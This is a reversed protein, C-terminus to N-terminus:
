GNSRGEPLAVGPAPLTYGLKQMAERIAARLDDRYHCTVEVRGNKGEHEQVLKWGVDADGAGTPMAFASVDLYERAIFDLLITDPHQSPAEVPLVGSARDLREIEALILAGARILNERRTKPKWSAADWPWFRPASERPDRNHAYFAAAEALSGDIHDDDHSSEYGEASIQRQREALVDQAAKTLSNM